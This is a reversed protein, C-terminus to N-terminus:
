HRACMGAGSWESWLNQAATCLCRREGIAATYMEASVGAELSAGPIIEAMVRRMRGVVADTSDPDDPDSYNGSDIDSSITIQQAIRVARMMTDMQM